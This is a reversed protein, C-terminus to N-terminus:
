SVAIGIAVGAMVSAIGFLVITARLLVPRYARVKDKAVDDFRGHTKHGETPTGYLNDSAGPPKQEQTLQGQYAHRALYHDLYGPAAINGFIIKVAPWGLWLERPPRAAIRVVHQAIAEPQFIPAIPQAKRGTRNRAWDFQPTNVAPLQVM